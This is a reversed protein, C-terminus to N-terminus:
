PVARGTPSRARSWSRATTLPGTVESLVNRLEPRDPGALAARVLSSGHEVAAGGVLRWASLLVILTLAAAVFSRSGRKRSVERAPPPLFVAGAKEENQAQGPM